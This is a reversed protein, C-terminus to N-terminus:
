GRARRLGPAGIRRGSRLGASRNRAGSASGRRDTRSSGARPIDGPTGNNNRTRSFPALMFALLETLDSLCFGPEITTRRRPCVNTILLRSGRQFVRCPQSKLFPLGTTRAM